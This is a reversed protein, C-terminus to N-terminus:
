RFVFFLIVGAIIAAISGGGIAVTWPHNILSRPSKDVTPIPSAAEVRVPLPEPKRSEAERRRKLREAASQVIAEIRAALGRLTIEDGSQLNAIGPQFRRFYVHFLSFGHEDHGLTQVDFSDLQEEREDHEKRFAQLDDSSYRGRRDSGSITFTGPDEDNAYPRLLDVVKAALEWDPLDVEPLNDL